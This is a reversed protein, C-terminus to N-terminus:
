EIGLNKKTIEHVMHQDPLSNVVSEKQLCRKAWAIYKPCEDDIKLPVFTDYAKFWPYFTVLAIDVFGLNEGGFFSKEGLEKEMLKLFEILGKFGAKREEGKSRAAKGL